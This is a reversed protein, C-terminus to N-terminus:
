GGVLGALQRLRDYGGGGEGKDASERLVRSNPAGSTRRKQSDARPRRATSESVAGAARFSSELVAFIRKVEKVNQAKDISEIVSRKQEATLRGHGTMFRNVHLIKSNLLNMESLKAHMTRVMETLKSNQAALARNEAMGQKILPRLSEVTWKKKAPPEIDDFHTEGSKYDAINAPDSQYQGKAGAGFEHPKQMDSFGKKVDVELQLAEHYIAELESESLELTEDVEDKDKAEYAEYAPEEDGETVDEAEDVADDAMENVGPFLAAVSEMKDKKDKKMDKGEEFETEGHGDAARRLRDVDEGLAGRRLQGDIIAQITPTLQEILENKAADVALRAVAKSESVANKAISM